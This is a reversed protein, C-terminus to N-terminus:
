ERRLSAGAYPDSNAPPLERLPGTEVSNAIPPTTAVSPERIASLSAAIAPAGLLIFVGVLTRLGSGLYIRGTLMGFGILAIAIVCLTTAIPGLLATELWAVSGTTVPETSPDFLSQGPM